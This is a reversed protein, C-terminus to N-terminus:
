GIINIDIKLSENHADRVYARVWSQAAALVPDRNNPKKRPHSVSLRYALVLLVDIDRQFAYELLITWDDWSWYFPDHSKKNELCYGM